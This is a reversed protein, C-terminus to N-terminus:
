DGGAKGILVFSIGIFVYMGPSYVQYIGYSILTIGILVLLDYIGFHEKIKAFM